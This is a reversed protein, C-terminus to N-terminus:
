SVFTHALSQKEIIYMSSDVYLYYTVDTTNLDKKISIFM